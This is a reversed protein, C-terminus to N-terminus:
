VTIKRANDFFDDLDIDFQQALSQVAQSSKDWNTAYEWFIELEGGIQAVTEAATKLLGMRHLQTRGQAPSITTVPDIPFLHRPAGNDLLTQAVEIQPTTKSFEMEFYRWGEELEEFGWRYYILGGSVEVEEKKDNSYVLM